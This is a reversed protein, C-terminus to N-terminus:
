DHTQSRDTKHLDRLRQTAEAATIEGRELAALIAGRQEANPRNAQAQTPRTARTPRALQTTLLPLAVKFAEDLRARVTPYSLGLEREVDKVNGRVRLFLELLSAYPEPLNVLRSAGPGAEGTGGAGGSAAGGASAVGTVGPHLFTGSVETACNPCQLRTVLLGGGCTPCSTPPPYATGVGEDTGGEEATTM